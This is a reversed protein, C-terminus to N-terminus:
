LSPDLNFALEVCLYNQIYYIYKSQIVCTTMETVYIPIKCTQVSDM